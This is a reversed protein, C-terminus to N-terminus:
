AHKGVMRPAMCFVELADSAFRLTGIFRSGGHVALQLSLLWVEFLLLM